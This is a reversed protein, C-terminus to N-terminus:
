GEAPASGARAPERRLRGVAVVVGGLGFIAVLFPIWPGVYPIFGIAFLILLGLLLGLFQMLRRNADAFFSLILRGISMGVFVQASYLAISYLLLTVLGVPIGVVTIMVLIAIIPALILTAVGLGLSLLPGEILQNSAAITIRPLGFLMVTGYVAAIVFGIIAPVFMGVSVGAVEAEGDAAVEGNEETLQEAIVEGGIQAGSAIKADISSRYVLDGGIRASDTVTLNNADLDVDTGVSGNLTATQVGGSIRREVAGDLTFTSALPILDRGVVGSDSVTAINGAVLLDEGISGLVSAEYGALRASEVVTGNIVITTAGINVMGNVTGNITVTTGLAFVDGNVTGDIVITTGFLYLDDDIVEGEAITITTDARFDAALAAPVAILSILFTLLLALSLRLRM